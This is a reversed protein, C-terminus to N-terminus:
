KDVILRYGVGIIQLFISFTTTKENVYLAYLPLIYDINTHGKEKPHRGFSFDDINFNQSSAFGGNVKSIYLDSSKM